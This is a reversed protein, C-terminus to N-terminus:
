RQGESGRAAETPIMKAPTLDSVARRLWANEREWAKLRKAEDSRM